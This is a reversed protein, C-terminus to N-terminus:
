ISSSDVLKEYQVEGSAERFMLYGQVETESSKQHILMILYVSSPHEMENGKILVKMHEILEEPKDGDLIINEFEINGTQLNTSWMKSSKSRKPLHFIGVKVPALIALLKRFDVIISDFTPEAEYEM